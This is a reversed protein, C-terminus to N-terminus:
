KRVLLFLGVAALIALMVPAVAGTEKVNEVVEVAANEATAQIDSIRQMYTNAWNLVKQWYARTEAAPLHASVQEPDRTGAAQIARNVVGAGANYAMAALEWSGGFRKLEGALIRAGAQLNTTPNMLDAVTIGEMGIERSYAPTAWIPMVQALGLAGAGSRANPSWASETKVLGLFLEPPVGAEQAAATALQILQPTEAMGGPHGIGFM